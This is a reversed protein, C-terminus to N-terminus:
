GDAPEPDDESPPPQYRCVSRFRCFRDCDSPDVDFQGATVPGLLRHVATDLHPLDPDPPTMGVVAPPIARLNNINELRELVVLYGAEFETQADVELGPRGAAARLYLPLQFASTCLGKEPRLATRYPTANRSTKYDLVRVRITRGDRREFEVRDPRARIALPPGGAPDPLAFDLDEELHREVTVGALDRERQARWELAVVAEFAAALQAWSLRLFAADKPPITRAVDAESRALFERALGRAGEETTPLRAHTRFFGELLRHVMTGRERADLEPGPLERPVLGLYRRAFFKFRCAALEEIATASGARARVRAMRAADTTGLRGVWPGALEGRRASAAPALFYIARSEEMVARRDIAALRGAGDPLRSALLRGLADGAADTRGWRDAAARGLLEAVEACRELPPLVVSGAEAEPVLGGDLTAAVEAVFPSLTTPAGTADTLPCSIVLEREPMSLALFFLFPEELSAERATRLLGGLPLGEARPGLKVRLQTAALPALTRRIEDPLLVSQARPRPFTGDDLGLLFVADFDLGRADLVGLAPVAREAPPPDALETEAAAATLVRLFEALPVRQRGLRTGLAGLEGLLTDLRVWAHGDRAAFPALEPDDTVPRFGFGRLVARLARVHGALTRPMDFAALRTAVAVAQGAARERAPLPRRTAAERVCGALPRVKADVYGVERLLRDLSRPVRRFYDSAAITALRERPVGEVACAIVNAVTAFLPTSELPRTRRLAVAVRFRRSVDEILDGYAALDRVIIALREPPAGAAIRERIERVAAEVEGYRNPATRLRISGDPPAPPPREVMFVGALAAALSGQRGGRFVFGPLVRDAITQDSVFRNWSRELFRAADVNTPHAFVILEADGVATILATAILFEVMSFDYLEAFVVRRLGRLLPPREGRALAPGLRECVWWDRGRRDVVGLQALVRDYARYAVAVLAARERARRETCAQAIRDFDEASLYAARLESIVDLVEAVVGRARLSAADPHAALERELALAALPREILPPCGGLERGLADVLEPFTMVRQGFVAVGRRAGDRVVARAKQATPYIYLTDPSLGAVVSADM